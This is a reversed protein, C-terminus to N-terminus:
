LTPSPVPKRNKIKIAVTYIASITLYLISAAFIVIAPYAFYPTPPHAGIKYYYFLPQMLFFSVIIIILITIIKWVSLTFMNRMWGLDIHSKTAARDTVIHPPTDKKLQEFQPQSTKSRNKFKDYLYGITVGLVSGTAIGKWTGFEVIALILGVLGGIIWPKKTSSKFNKIKGYSWGLLAGILSYFIVNSIIAWLLFNEEQAWPPTHDFSYGLMDFLALLPYLVFLVAGGQLADFIVFPKLLAIALLIDLTLTLFMGRVWYPWNKWNM